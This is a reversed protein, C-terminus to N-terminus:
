KDVLSRNGYQIIKVADKYTLQDLEKPLDTTRDLAEAALVELKKGTGELINDIAFHQVSTALEIGAESGMDFDTGQSPANSNEPVDKPPGSAPAAGGLNFNTPPVGMPPGLPPAQNVVPADGTPQMPQVPASSTQPIGQPPGFSPAQFQSPNQYGPQQMPAPQQQPMQPAQYQQQMPEPAQYNTYSGGSQNDTNEDELRLAVGWRSCATKIAKSMASRFGNGIDMMKGANPGSKFRMVQHSAYGEHVFKDGCADVISVRVRVLFQDECIEQHVVETSWKGEFVTNMREIIDDSEVYKFTVGGQGQRTKVDFPQALANLVERDM